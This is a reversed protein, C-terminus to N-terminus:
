NDVERTEQRKYKYDRLAELLDLPVDTVYSPHGVFDGVKFDCWGHAPNSIM